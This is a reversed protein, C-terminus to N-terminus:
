RASRRTTRRRLLLLGGGLATLVLAVLAPASSDAGTQALSAGTAPTEAVIETGEAPVPPTGQETPTGPDAPTGSGGDGPTGSGGDGPTPCPSPATSSSPDCNGGPTGSGGDASVAFHITANATTTGDFVTYSAWDAGIFGADPTYKVSGDSYVIVTGHQAGGYSSVTLADGDADEDNALAGAAPVTLTQGAAVDYDDDHPMPPTNPKQPAAPKVEITVTAHNSLAGNYDMLWYEYSDTGVFGPDPVYHVEGFAGRYTLTGHAPQTGNQVQFGDGPDPDSDNGRVGPEGVVLDTDQITEYHDDVAIPAHNQPPPAPTVTITVTAWTGAAGWVDPRYTFTATGSFAAPPTYSFGGGFGLDLAGVAPDTHAGVQMTGPWPYVDNGLVGSDAVTLVTGQVMTYGDDAGMPAPQPGVTVLVTQWASTAGHEDIVYYTFSDVGAFGPTPTYTFSGDISWTNITGHGPTTVGGVQITDGDPDSAGYLLGPADDTLSVGLTVQYKHGQAIPAQNPGLQQVPGAFATRGSPGSGEAAARESGETPAVTAAQDAEPASGSGQEPAPDAAPADAAPADAAPTPSDTGPSAADGSAEAGDQAADQAPTGDSAGATAAGDKPTAADAGVSPGPAVEDASAALPAAVALALALGAATACRATRSARSGPRSAPTPIM